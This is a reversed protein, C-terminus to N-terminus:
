IRRGDLLNAGVEERTGHYIIHGESMVMIDDFLNFVETHM